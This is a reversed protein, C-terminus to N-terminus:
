WRLVASTFGKRDAVFWENLDGYPSPDFRSVQGPRWLQELKDMHTRGAKDPDLALVIDAESFLLVWHRNFNGAGLIGLAPAGAVILSLTDFEGEAIWVEDSGPGLGLPNYLHSVAGAPSEYKPRGNPRHIREYWVGKRGPCPIIVHEGEVRIGYPTLEGPQFGRSQEFQELPMVRPSDLM